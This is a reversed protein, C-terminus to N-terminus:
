EANRITELAALPDALSKWKAKINSLEEITNQINTPRMVEFTDIVFRELNWPGGPTKRWRGKGSVRLTNKYLHQAISIAVPREALCKWERTGDELDVNSLDSKGGVWFPTGYLEAPQNISPREIPQEERAGPFKVLSELRPNLLDASANDKRLLSNIRIIARSADEDGEGSRAKRVREIVKPEAEWDVLVVPCTSSSEIAILHVHPEEGLLIAIDSLYEALRSMPMTEPSYADIKLRYERKEAM